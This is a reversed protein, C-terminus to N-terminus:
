AGKVYGKWARMVDKDTSREAAHALLHDFLEHLPRPECSYMYKRKYNHTSAIVTFLLGDDGESFICMAATAFTLFPGLSLAELVFGRQDIDNEKNIVYSVMQLRNLPDKVMKNLHEWAAEDDFQDGKANLFLEDTIVM